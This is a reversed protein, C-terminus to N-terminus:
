KKNGVDSCTENSTNGDTAPHCATSELESKLAHPYNSKCQSTLMHYLLVHSGDWHNRPTLRPDATTRNNPNRTRIGGPDHIDAQQSHQINDSHETNSQDSTWLLEASHPTDSHLRSAGITSAKAVILHHAMSFFYM